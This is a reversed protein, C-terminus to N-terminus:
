FFILSMKCPNLNKQRIPSNSYLKSFKFSLNNLFMHVPKEEKFMDTWILIVM